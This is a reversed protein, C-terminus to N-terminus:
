RLAPVEMPQYSELTHYCQADSVKLPGQRPKQYVAIDHKVFQASQRIYQKYFAQGSRKLSSLVRGFDTRMLDVFEM